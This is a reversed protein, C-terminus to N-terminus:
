AKAGKPAKPASKPRGPGSARASEREHKRLDAEYRHVDTLESFRRGVDVLEQKTLYAAPVLAPDRGPLLDLYDKMVGDLQLRLAALQAVALRATADAWVRGADTSGMEDLVTYLPAFSTICLEAKKGLEVVEQRVDAVAHPIEDERDPLGRKLKKQLGTVEAEAADRQAGLDTTQEELERIRDRLKRVSLTDIDEAGDELLAQVVAPDAGAIEMVKSRPLEILRLREAEPRSCVFHAYQMARRAAREEFGREEVLATFQGHECEAKISALLLGAALMHRQSRNMHEAAQNAREDVSGSVDVGIALAFGAVATGDIEFRDVDATKAAVATQPPKKAM